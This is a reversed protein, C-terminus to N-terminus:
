TESGSDTQEEPKLMTIVAILMIVLLLCNLVFAPISITFISGLVAGASGFIVASCAIKQHYRREKIVSFGGGLPALCGMSLVMTLASLPAMGMLLFMATGAAKMPVGLVVIGGWFFSLVAAVALLPMGLGSTGSAEGGGIIMRFVIAAMSFMLAFATIKKIRKGDFRGVLRSGAMSGLTIAISCPILTTIQVSNEVRLLFFAIVAGPLLTAAVVTGPVNKSGTLKGYKILLTNWLFDSMGITSLFFIVAELVCIVPLNGKERLFEEKNKFAIFLLAAGFLLGWALLFIGIIDSM